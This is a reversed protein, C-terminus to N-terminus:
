DNKHSREWSTSNKKVELILFKKVLNQVIHKQYIWSIQQMRIKWWLPHCLVFTTHLQKDGGSQAPTM